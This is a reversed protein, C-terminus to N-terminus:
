FQLAQSVQALQTCITVEDVAEIAQLLHIPEHLEAKLAVAHLAHEVQGIELPADRAGKRRAKAMMPLFGSDRGSLQESPSVTGRPRRGRQSLARSSISFRLWLRSPPM